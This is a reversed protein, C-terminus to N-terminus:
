KARKEGPKLDPAEPMPNSPPVEDVPDNNSFVLPPVDAMAVGPNKRMYDATYDDRVRALEDDARGVAVANAIEDFAQNLEPYRDDQEWKNVLAQINDWREAAGEQSETIPTPENMLGFFKYLKPSLLGKIAKAKEEPHIDQRDLYTELQAVQASETVNMKAFVDARVDAQEQLLDPNENIRRAVEVPYLDTMRSYGVSGVAKLPNDRGLDLFKNFDALAEMQGTYVLGDMSELFGNTPSRLWDEHRIMELTKEAILQRAGEADHWAINRLSIAWEDASVKSELIKLAMEHAEPRNGEKCLQGLQDLFFVRLSPNEILGANQGVAFKQGPIEKDVGSELLAMSLRIAEERPLSKLFAAMRALAQQRVHWDPSDLAAILDDLEAQFKAQHNEKSIARGSGTRIDKARSSTAGTTTDKGSSIDPEHQSTWLMVAISGLIITGASAALSRKLVTRSVPKM